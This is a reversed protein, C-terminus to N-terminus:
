DVLMECAQLLTAQVAFDHERSFDAEKEGRIIRAMDAADDVYRVYKPFSIAQTGARYDGQARSLSVPASPDDLPQIHFTGESGCVTLHRRNFGEVELASSRITATARPYALVSLM